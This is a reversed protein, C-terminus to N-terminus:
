ITSNTLSKSNGIKGELMVNFSISIRSDDFEQVIEVYHMLWAPFLLLTNKKTAFSWYSSNMFTYKNISPSFVGAQERPDMFVIESYNNEPYFVGSLLNNPHTHPRHFQGKKMKNAWMGTINLKEYDWNFDNMWEKSLKLVNESLNGFLSLEHLNPKSYRDDLNKCFDNIKALNEESEIGNKKWVMTPFLLQKELNPM